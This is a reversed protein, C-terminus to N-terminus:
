FALVPLATSAAHGVLVADTGIVFLILCERSHVGLKAFINEMHSKITTGKVGMREAIQSFNFRPVQLVWGVVERERDTLTALREHDSLVVKPPAKTVGDMYQLVYPNKFYDGRLLTAVIQGLLPESLERNEFGAAGARFSRYAIAADPLASLALAPLPRQHARIHGLTALGDMCRMPKDLYPGVDVIVQDVPCQKSAAIYHEGHDAIIAVHHGLRGLVLVLGERFINSSEVIAISAKTGMTGIITSGPVM